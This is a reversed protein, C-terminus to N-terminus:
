RSTGLQVEAALSDGWVQRSTRRKQHRTRRKGEAHSMTAVGFRRPGTVSRSFKGLDRFGLGRLAKGLVSWGALHAAGPSLLISFISEFPADVPDAPRLEM